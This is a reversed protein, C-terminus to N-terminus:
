KPLRVAMKRRAYALDRYWRKWDFLPGPDVKVDSRLGLAVARDGAVQDHGVYTMMMGRSREISACLMGLRSYQLRTFGSTATALLEIGISFDNVQRRGDPQPMISGGCHWAKFRDPVLRYIAGRRTILYHSSVGYEFFLPIVHDLGFPDDPFREVASTYHIVVVDVTDNARDSWLPSTGTSAAPRGIASTNYRFKDSSQLLRNRITIEM